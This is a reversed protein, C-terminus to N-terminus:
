EGEFAVVKVEEAGARKLAMAQGVANPLGHGSPGTNAKIFLTKGEFEAHGALGAHRRFMLLDELQVSLRGDGPIRYKADGTRRHMEHLTETLVALTSYVLPTTHGAALVFRDGFAKWPARLDWRMVGGLLTVVLAHVKSRSGGPHGSQRHNLLLDIEQDIVDKIIEWHRFHPRVEALRAEVPAMDQKLM